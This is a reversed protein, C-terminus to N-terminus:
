APVQDALSRAHTAECAAISALLQATPASVAGIRRLATTMASRETDLLLALSASRSSPVSPGRVSRLTLARGAPVVIHARLRALHARHDALLPGLTDTLDSYHALTRTYAYVLAEEAAIAGSLERVDPSLPPPGALPSPGHCGTLTVAALLTASSALM